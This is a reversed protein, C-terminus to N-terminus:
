PIFFNALNLISINNQFPIVYAKVQIYMQRGGKFVELIIGLRLNINRQQDERQIANNGGLVGALQVLAFYM